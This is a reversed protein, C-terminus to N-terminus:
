NASGLSGQAGGNELSIKPGRRGEAGGGYPKEGHICRPRGALDCLVGDEELLLGASRFLGFVAQAQSSGIEVLLHGGPALFDHARLAIRRYAALGDAGGDLAAAPDHGSVERSLSAIEGSAIYPPNAVIIDFQGTLGDFWDATVFRARAGLGLRQANESAMHLAGPSLDTGTGEASPLEALLTTLICGSGTGLDLLRLPEPHSSEERRAIEIAAEVLRETDPRPDLTHEDILFDRGFFERFGKIRSVPEGSLRRTVYGAFRAAVGRPLPERGRAILKEHSLGAAHCLLVRSDLSPTALGAERLLRAAAVHAADLTQAENLTWSM